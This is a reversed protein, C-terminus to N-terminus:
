GWLFCFNYRMSQNLGDIRIKGIQGYESFLLYSCLSIPVAGSNNGTTLTNDQRNTGSFSNLSGVITMNIGTNQNNDNLLNPLTFGEYVLFIQIIGHRWCQIALNSGDNFNINVAYQITSGGIYDSFDSYTSGSVARVKYYYSTAAQLGNDTYTFVNGPVTVPLKEYTGNPADSRWVEFATVGSSNSKWSLSISNRDSKSMNLNFPPLIITNDYEQIVMANIVAYKGADANVIVDIVGGAPQLASLQATKSSNGTANFSVTQGGARFYTEQPQTFLRSGFFTLNYKKSSSLGSIRITKQPASTQTFFYYGSMMISDPYVGSNDGTVTGAYHQAWIELLEVGMATAEGTEKKLNSIKTNKPVAAGGTQTVNFSNWPKFSVPYDKNNFNVFVSTMYRDTVILEITKSSTSGYNDSATITVSYTGIHSGTPSLHIVGSGNGNDTFTAFSPFHSATLQIIDGQDDTATIIM